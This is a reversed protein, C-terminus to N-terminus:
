KATRAEDEPPVRLASILILAAFVCFAVPVASFIPPPGRDSQMEGGTDAGSLLSWATILIVYAGVCWAAVRVRRPVGRLVRSWSMGYPELEAGRNLRVAELVAPFWIVLVGPISAFSLLAWPHATDFVALTLVLLLALAGAVAIGILVPLFRRFSGLTM